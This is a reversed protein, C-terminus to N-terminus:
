APGASYGLHRLHECIENVIVPAPLKASDLVLHPRDWPEYDRALVDQWRPQKLGAIDPVRSEVRQRHTEPNSCIIEIEVFPHNLQKAVQRWAQRTIQLPNVSDAIVMQGLRLNDAAIAYAIQYGAPGIDDMLGLADRLAQEISDIRLHVAHLAQALDKAITTKGSAPLGGLIILM